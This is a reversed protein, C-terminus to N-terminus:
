IPRLFLAIPTVLRCKGPFAEIIVKPNGTSTGKSSIISQAVRIASAPARISIRDRVVPSAYPFHSLWKDIPPLPPLGSYHKLSTSTVLSDLDSADRHPPLPSSTSVPASKPPRVLKQRKGTPTSVVNRTGNFSLRRVCAALHNARSPSLM